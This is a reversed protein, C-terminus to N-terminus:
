AEVTPFGARGLAEVIDARTARPEHEVTVTKTPVEVSVARVGELTGLVNEISTACGGCVIDPAVLTTTETRTSSM